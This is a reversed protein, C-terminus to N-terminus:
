YPDSRSVRRGENRWRDGAAAAPTEIIFIDGTNMETRDAGLLVETSGDTCLVSNRGLGSSEEGALGYPPVQRHSSPVAAMPEQLSKAYFRKVCTGEDGISIVGGNESM